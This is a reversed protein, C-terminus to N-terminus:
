GASAARFVDIRGLLRSEDGAARVARGTRRQTAKFESFFRNICLLVGQYTGWIVFNWSAGHWLGGLVM